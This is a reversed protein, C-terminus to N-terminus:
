MSVYLSVNHTLSSTNGSDTEASKPLLHRSKSNEQSGKQLFSSNLMTPTTPNCLISRKQICPLSLSTSKTYLTIHFLSPPKITLLSFPTTTFHTAMSATFNRRSWSFGIMANTSDQPVGWLSIKTKKKTKQPSRM